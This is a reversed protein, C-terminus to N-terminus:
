FRYYEGALDSHSFMSGLLNLQEMTRKSATKMNSNSHVEIDNSKERSANGLLGKASKMHKKQSCEIKKVLWDKFSRWKIYDEKYKQEVNEKATVLAAYKKTLVHLSHRLKIADTENEFQYRNTLSLTHSSSMQLPLLSHRHKHKTLHCLVLPLQLHSM